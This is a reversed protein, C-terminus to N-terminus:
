AKMNSETYIDKFLGKLGVPNISIVETTPYYINIFEKFKNWGYLNANIAGKENTPKLDPGVAHQGINNNDCGVIYINKPNGYLIFQMAPFSISGYCRLIESSPDLAFGRGIEIRQRYWVNQTFYKSAGHAIIISEPITWGEEIDPRFSGYFRKLEKNKYNLSNEMYPRVALYDQMFLYDLTIKEYMFSSNVGVYIADNEIVNPEFYKLTPGTAILVVSKDYFINKYKGFTKQHTSQLEITKQIFEFNYDLYKESFIKLLALQNNKIEPCSDALSQQRNMIDNIKEINNILQRGFLLKLLKRRLKQFLQKIKM